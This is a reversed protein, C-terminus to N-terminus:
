RKRSIKTKGEESEKSDKSTNESIDSSDSSDHLEDIIDRTPKLANGLGNLFYGGAFLLLSFSGALLAIKAVTIGDDKEYELKNTISDSVSEEIVKSVWYDWLWM